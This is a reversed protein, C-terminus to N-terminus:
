VTPGWFANDDEYQAILYSGKYDEVDWVDSLAYFKDKYIFGTLKYGTPAIPKPYMTSLPKGIEIQARTSGTGGNLDIKVTVMNLEEVDEYIAILPESDYNVVDWIDSIAYLKEKYKYGVLKKGAPPTPATTLTSMQKGLTIKAFSNGTGGNVDLNVSISVPNYANIVAVLTADSAISWAGTYPVETGNFMWKVTFLDGAVKATYLEYESKFVIEQKNSVQEGGNYLTVDVPISSFDYTITYTLPAYVSYLKVTDAFM